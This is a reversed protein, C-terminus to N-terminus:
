TYVNLLVRLNQPIFFDFEFDYYIYTFKILYGKSQLM